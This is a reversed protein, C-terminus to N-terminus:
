DNYNLNQIPKNFAPDSIVEKLKDASVRTTKETKVIIQQLRQIEKELAEIRQKQFELVDSM